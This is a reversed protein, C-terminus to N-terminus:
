NNIFINNSITNAKKAHIRKSILDNSQKTGLNHKNGKARSSQEKKWEETHKRGKSMKGLSILFEKPLKLRAQRMTERVEKSWKRGLNSGAVPNLNYEPKYFNIWCQEREILKEKECYELVEFVFNESSHKNWASQLYKNSHRNRNLDSKHNSCRKALDLASGVYVKCNTLNKIKYIGSKM